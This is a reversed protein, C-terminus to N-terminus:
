IEKLIIEYVKQTNDLPNDIKDVNIIEFKTQSKYLIEAENEVDSISEVLKGNKGEIKFIVNDTRFGFWNDM